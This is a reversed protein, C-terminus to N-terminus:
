VIDFMRHVGVFFSVEINTDRPIMFDEVASLIALDPKFKSCRFVINLQLPSSQSILPNVIFFM